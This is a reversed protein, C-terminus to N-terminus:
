RAVPRPRRVNFIDVGKYRPGAFGRSTAGQKMRYARLNEPFYAHAVANRIANIAEINAAIAKPVLYVDKVFALKEMLSMKELIFYNFREFRKTKWLKIFGSKGFMYDCFWRLFSVRQPQPM